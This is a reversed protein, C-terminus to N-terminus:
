PPDGKAAREDIAQSREELILSTQRGSNKSKAEIRAIGFPVDAIWYTVSESKKEVTVRCAKLSGALTQVHEIAGGRETCKALQAKVKRPTWMKWKLVYKESKKTQAGNVFTRLVPLSNLDPTYREFETIHWKLQIKTDVGKGNKSVGVFSVQDGFAPYASASSSSFISAVISVLVLIKLNVVRM